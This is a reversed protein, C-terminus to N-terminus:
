VWPYSVTSNGARGGEPALRPERQWGWRRRERTQGNRNCHPRVASANGRQLVGAKSKQLSLADRYSGPSQTTVSDTPLCISLRPSCSVPQRERHKTVSTLNARHDSHLLSPVPCGPLRSLACPTSCSHGTGVTQLAGEKDRPSIRASAPV